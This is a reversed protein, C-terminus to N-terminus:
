FEALNFAPRRKKEHCVVYTVIGKRRKKCERGGERERPTGSSSTRMTKKKRDGEPLSSIPMFHSKKGEKKGYGLSREKKEMEEKFDGGNQKEKEEKEKEKPINQNIEAKGEQCAKFRDSDRGHLIFFPLFRNTRKEEKKKNNAASHITLGKGEKV